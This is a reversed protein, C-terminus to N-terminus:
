HVMQLQNFNLCKPFNKKSKKIKNISSDIISESLKSLFPNFSSVALMREWAALIVDEDGWKEVKSRLQQLQAEIKDLAYVVRAEISSKEEYDLWIEFIEEGLFNPLHDVMSKIARIENSKKVESLNSDKVIKSFPIDGTISEPLDHIISLKLAKSVDMELGLYPSILILFLSLSWTHAGVNEQVDNSCWIGRPEYKLREAIDLFGIISHIDDMNFEMLCGNIKKFGYSVYYRISRNLFVGM